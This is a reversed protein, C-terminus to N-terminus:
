GRVNLFASVVHIVDPFSAGTMSGIAGVAAILAGGIAAVLAMSIAGGRIDVRPALGEGLKSSDYAMHM